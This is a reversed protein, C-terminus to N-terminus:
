ANRLYRRSALDASSRQAPRTSPQSPAVVIVELRGIHVRPAAVPEPTPSPREPRRPELARASPSVEVRPAPVLSESRAAPTARPEALPIPKVLTPALAATEIQTIPAERAAGDRDDAAGAAPQQDVRM